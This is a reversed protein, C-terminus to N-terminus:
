FTARWRDGLSDTLTDVASVQKASVDPANTGESEFDLVQIASGIRRVTQYNHEAFGSAADAIVTNSHVWIFGDGDSAKKAGNTISVTIAVDQPADDIDSDVGPSHQGACKAIERVIGAYAKKAAAESGYVHMEQNVETVGTGGLQLMSSSLLTKAGKGAAEQEKDLDCLWLDDPVGQTAYTLNFTRTYKGTIGAKKGEAPTMMATYADGVFGPSPEAAQAPIAGAATLAVTSAIIALTKKM